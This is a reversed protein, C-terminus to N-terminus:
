YEAWQREGKGLRQSAEVHGVPIQLKACVLSAALTSNVDGYVLMIDPRKMLVAEEFRMM